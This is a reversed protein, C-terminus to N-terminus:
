ITGYIEFDGLESREIGQFEIMIPNSRMQKNIKKKFADILGIRDSMYFVLKTADFINYATILFKRNEIVYSTIVFIYKGISFLEMMMICSKFKLVIYIIIM